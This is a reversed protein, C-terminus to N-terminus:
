KESPFSNKFGWGNQLYRGCQPKRIYLNQENAPNQSQPVLLHEKAKEEEKM